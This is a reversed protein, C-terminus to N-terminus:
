FLDRAFQKRLRSLSEPTIGLYSAIHYQPLRLSLGPFDHLFLSYRKSAPYKLQALEKQEKRLYLKELLIKYLQLSPLHKSILDQFDEYNWSWCDSDELAEIWIESSAQLIFSSLATCFPNQSDVAFDKTYDMGEHIIYYRFLGSNVFILQRCIEGERVLFEGKRFQSFKAQSSFRLLDEENMSVISQIYSHLKSKQKKMNEDNRLM